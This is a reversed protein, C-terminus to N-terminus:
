EESVAAVVLEAIGLQDTRYASAEADAALRELVQWWVSVAAPVEGTAESGASWAQAELLLRMDIFSELAEQSLYERGEFQNVGLTRRMAKDTLLQQQLQWAVPAHCANEGWGIRLAQRLVSLLRRATEPEGGAALLGPLVSSELRWDPPEGVAGGQGAAEQLVTLLVWCYLLPLVEPRRDLAGQLGVGAQRYDKTESRALGAAL